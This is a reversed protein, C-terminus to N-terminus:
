LIKIFNNSYKEEKKGGKKRKKKDLPFCNMKKTGNQAM